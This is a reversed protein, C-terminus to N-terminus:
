YVLMMIFLFVTVVIDLIAICLFLVITEDNLLIWNWTKWPSMKRDQILWVYFMQLSFRLTSKLIIKWLLERTKFSFYVNGFERMMGDYIQLDCVKDIFLCTRRIQYSAFPYSNGPKHERSLDKDACSNEYDFQQYLHHGQLVLFLSGAAECPHGIIQGRKQLKRKGTDSM